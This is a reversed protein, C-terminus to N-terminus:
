QVTSAPTEFVAEELWAAAFSSAAVPETVVAGANTVVEIVVCARAFHRVRIAEIRTLCIDM